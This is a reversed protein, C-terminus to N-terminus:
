RRNGAGGDGVDLDVAHEVLEGRDGADDFVDRIQQEVELAQRELDVAVLRPYQRQRRGPRAFHGGGVDRGVGVDLDQARVVM